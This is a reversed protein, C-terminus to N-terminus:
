QNMSLPLMGRSESGELRSVSSEPGQHLPSVIAMPRRILKDLSQQNFQVFWLSTHTFDANRNCISDGLFPVKPYAVDLFRWDGRKPHWPYPSNEPLHSVSSIGSRRSPILQLVKTQLRFNAPMAAMYQIRNTHGIATPMSWDVGTENLAHM